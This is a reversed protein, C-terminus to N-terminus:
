LLASGPEKNDGYYTYLGIENDLYDPWDVDSKTSHIVYYFKGKCPRFGGGNRVKMLLSMADQYGGNKYITDINIYEQKSIDEYKIIKSMKGGIHIIDCFLHSLGM